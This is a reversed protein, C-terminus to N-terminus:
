VDSHILDFACPSRHMRSIYSSRTHKSLACIHCHFKHFKCSKILEPFLLCLYQFNVHGLCAHWLNLSRFSFDHSGLTPLTSAQLVTSPPAPIPPPDGFYYLGDREFGRGFIRRTSRDSFPHPHDM